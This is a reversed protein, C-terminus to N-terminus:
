IEMMVISVSMESGTVAHRGALTRQPPHAGSASGGSSLRAPSHAGTVVTPTETTVSTSELTLGTEAYKM